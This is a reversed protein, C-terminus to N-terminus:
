RLGQLVDDRTVGKHRAVAALIAALTGVRLQPHAPVVVRQRSPQDTELTVHSGVRHVERYSWRGCLHRVLEVGSLDRPLTM